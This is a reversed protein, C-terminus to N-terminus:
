ASAEPAAAYLVDSGHGGVLRADALLVIGWGMLSELAGVMVDVMFRRRWERRKRHILVVCGVGQIVASSCFAFCAASAVM